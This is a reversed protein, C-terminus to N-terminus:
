ARFAGGVHDIGVVARSGVEARTIMTRMEVRVTSM